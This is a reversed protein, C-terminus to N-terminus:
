KSPRYDGALFSVGSEELVEYVGPKLVKPITGFDLLNMIVRQALFLAIM